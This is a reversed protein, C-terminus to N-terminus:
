LITSVTFSLSTKIECAAFVSVDLHVASTMFITKRDVFDATPRCYVIRMVANKHFIFM